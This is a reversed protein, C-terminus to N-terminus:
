LPVPFNLRHARYGIVIIPWLQMPISFRADGVPREAMRKGQKSAAVVPPALGPAGFSYLGYSYLGYSYLGYGYLRSGQRMLVGWATGYSHLGYSYLGYAYLGYSYRGYSHLRHHSGQRWYEEHLAMILCAMVIDYTYLGYAVCAM